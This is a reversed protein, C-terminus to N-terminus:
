EKNLVAIEDANQTTKYEFQLVGKESTKAQKHPKTNIVITYNSNPKLNNIQYVLKNSAVDKSSQTFALENENWTKIDLTLNSKPATTVNLSAKNTNGHFYALTKDAAFFGFNTKSVIKFNGNSVAYQNLNLDITLPQNQYTYRVQTGALSETIHPDLYFRNYRPNIGYIGQYLGVVSLSNGSLIDDGLGDQKARGYRQFALGDKAYQALVNKVYKLALEPKYDAYAKVAVAGWSLFIDGNEYNPFPFQWDNGEGPAYTSLCLPWFFLNEKQMHTEIDDLITKRRVDDTCIGYTIVMFNVPTVMNTGHISGDKDRWHIYCNKEADWLGGTTTPKNFSAKLKEAAATYLKEKTTNGLQNEIDAWLVLAHYLKANVFANEYAAWIIDIWDSGRKQTHSDTMMEVLGNGNTDRKLIWDLAKECAQQQSKVWGLDGTQDYLEAVNTVFDPNSDLLYGWQAEYFGKDTFGKPMADENSYAWRPWVRGDPKIANDRYYDLCQQYGKLYAPDNIALGMQAIYQEHLCIPGYPTHWSNGGFHQKDIVGIRAITNLVASVQEGNIGMLKGRGFKEEFGFYSLTISQSSKGAAIEIPAWVDTTDRVYRRRHTDADFRPVIETPSVAISYALRDNMTRSYDMAVHKGPAATAITLGNGTKSNWFRSSSSHVGYTDRKKNFLYFWALGGYDQYAGEWTDISSFMFVPFGVQEAVITKSAVRDIDFKVADNSITFTWTETITLNKDGYRINGISVTTNSTKVTPDALLQLSSYTADKTRINSYVGADGQVVQQGNIQLLSINAKKNYDLTLTIKGNGFVVTKEKSNNKIQVSQALGNHWAIFFSVICFFYLPKRIAM